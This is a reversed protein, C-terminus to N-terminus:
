FFYTIIPLDVMLIIFNLLESKMYHCYVGPLDLVIFNMVTKFILIIERNMDILGGRGGRVFATTALCKYSGEKTSHKVTM